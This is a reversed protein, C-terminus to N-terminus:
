LLEARLENKLSLLVKLLILFVSDEHVPELVETVKLDDVLLLKHLLLLPDEPREKLELLKLVAVSESRLLGSFCSWRVRLHVV